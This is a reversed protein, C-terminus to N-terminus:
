SVKNLINIFKRVILENSFRKMVNQRNQIGLDVVDERSLEKVYLMRDVLQEHNGVAFLQVGECGETIEPIGGINSAIVIRGKLLAETVVYPLPEQWISPVVVSRIHRYLNEYNTEDLKGYLVFGMKKLFDRTNESANQFKTAHIDVKGHSCQNLMRVARYLVSFGKLYNIGGFYGFYDNNVDIYSLNPLPNYVVHLKRWFLKACTQMILRRQAESVCILADSMSALREMFNKGISNLLTSMIVELSKRRNAKEHALICSAPCILNRKEQCISNNSLQYLTGLPCTLIYNHLHTVVPKGYAKALPIASYWYLPVYVVDAWRICQRFFGSFSLTFNGLMSYKLTTADKLLRLRFIELKGFKSREKEGPFLNTIVKVNVGSESLLRAYLYTALEAGGGHPYLLESLFLINM